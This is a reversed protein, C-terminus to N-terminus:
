NLKGERELLVALNNLAFPNTPDYEAARRFEKEAAEYEGQLLFDYGKVLPTFANEKKMHAPSFLLIGVIVALTAVGLVLWLKVNRM